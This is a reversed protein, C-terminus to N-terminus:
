LLRGIVENRVNKGTGTGNATVEVNTASCGTVNAERGAGIVQGADRGASVTSNAATCNKVPTAVTANGILAGAKDGNADDNALTCSVNAGTVHCNEVLATEQTIYGVLAGCNHHGVIVAGDITVNKLHGQGATHSEVWGFLGSSYHAGTENGSYVYLDKITHNQGDFVGNFTTAGTQGIPIWVNNAEEGFNIDAVLKVTKGAFSNKNVNVENAFWFMGARNSIEYEGAANKFVGDAILADEPVFTVGPTVTFTEVKVNAHNDYVYNVPTNNEIVFEVNEIPYSKSVSVGSAMYAKGSTKGPNKITNNTFVVKEGNNQNGWVQLSYKYQDNFTCGDVTVNVKSLIPRFGNANFVCNKVTVYEPNNVAYFNIGGDKKLDFLCNEVNVTACYLGITYTGTKDLYQHGTAVSGSYRNTLQLGDINITQGSAAIAIKGNVVASYKNHAKINLGRTIYFLGDYEGNALVIDKVKADNIANRLQEAGRVYSFQGEIVKTGGNVTVEDAYEAWDEDVWVANIPDAHVYDLNVNELNIDAGATSSVLIAAKKGTVFKANKLNLTVKAAVDKYNEDAVKVGRGNSAYVNLGDVNVTQGQATLWLGYNDDAVNIDVTNFDANNMVCIGKYSEVNNFEVANFFRLLNRSWHGTNKGSSTVNVNNLILKADPNALRVYNWDSNNQNFNITAGYGNITITQTNKGGLYYQESNAGINLTYVRSVAEDARTVVTSGELNIVIHEDNSKIATEFQEDTEVKLVDYDPNEFREDVVINFEAPNTLLWGVINTRYNRQMPVNNWVTVPDNVYGNKALWQFTVDHISKESDMDGVLLYNLALYNYTENNAKLVQDPLVNYEYTKSQVLSGPVVKNDFANFATYVNSVTVQTKEVDIGAKVAAIVDARLSGLNLQAFPRKLVVTKNIPNMSEQATVDVYNTFADHAEINSLQTDNIKINKLDDLTYVGAYDNYEKNYAFFAVRYEQGKALRIQYTAKKDKIELENVRLATLEEDDANYVACAVHTVTTGDGVARTAAGAPVDITFAALVEDGEANGRFDDEQTCATFLVAAMALM